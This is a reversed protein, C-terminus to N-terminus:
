CVLRRAPKEECLTRGWCEGPSRAFVAGECYSQLPCVFYIWAQCVVLGVVYALVTAWDPRQGPQALTTTLRILLVLAVTGPVLVMPLLLFRAGNRLGSAGEPPPWTDERRAQHVRPHLWVKARSARARQIAAFTTLTALVSVGLATLWAAISQERVAAPWARQGLALGLLGMGIVLGMTLFLGALATKWLGSAVYLFLCAWGRGRFPDRRRLWCATHFDDWGFKFCLVVVALAAQATLEFLLWALLVALPWAFAGLWNRRRREEPHFTEEAM